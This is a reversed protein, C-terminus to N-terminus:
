NDKWVHGNGEDEPPPLKLAERVLRRLEQSVKRYNKAALKPVIEAIDEDVEIRMLFRRPKGGEAKSLVSNRKAKKSRPKVM